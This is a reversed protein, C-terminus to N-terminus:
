LSSDDRGVLEILLELRTINNRGEERMERVLSNIFEHAGCVYVAKVLDQVEKSFSESFVEAQKSLKGM